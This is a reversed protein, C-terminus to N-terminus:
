GALAESKPTEFEFGHKDAFAKLADWAAGSKANIQDFAEGRWKDCKAGSNRGMDYLKHYGSPSQMLATRFGEFTEGKNTTEGATFDLTFGGAGKSYDAGVQITDHTMSKDTKPTIAVYLYKSM